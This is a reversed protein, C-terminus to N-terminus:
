GSPCGDLSLDHYDLQVRRMPLTPQRLQLLEGPQGTCRTHGVSHQCLCSARALLLLLCRSAGGAFHVYAVHGCWALSRRSRKTAM